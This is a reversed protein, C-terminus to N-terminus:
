LSTHRRVPSAIYNMGDCAEESLMISSGKIKHLLEEILTAIAKDRKSKTRIQQASAPNMDYGEINKNRLSFRWMNYLLEQQEHLCTIMYEKDM